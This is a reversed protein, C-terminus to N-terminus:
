LHCCLLELLTQTVNQTVVHLWHFNSLIILYMYKLSVTCFRKYRYKLLKLSNHVYKACLSSFGKEVSLVYM